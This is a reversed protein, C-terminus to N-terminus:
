AAVEDMKMILIKEPKIKVRKSAGLMEKRNMHHVEQCIKERLDYAEYIPLWIYERYTLRHDILGAAM